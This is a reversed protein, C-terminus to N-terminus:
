SGVVYVKVATSSVVRLLLLASENIAVTQGTDAITTTAGGDEALTDTQDGDNILLCTFCEGAQIGPFAAIINAATDFTLTGGGTESTHVIIGGKLAAATLTGNQADIDTPTLTERLGEPAITAVITRTAKERFVLNGNEWASDVLAMAM